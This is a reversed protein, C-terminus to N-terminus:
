DVENLVCASFQGERPEAGRAGGGLVEAVGDELHVRRETCGEGVEGPSSPTGSSSSGGKGPGEAPPWEWVCSSDVGTRAFRRFRGGALRVESRSSSFLTENCSSPAAALEM